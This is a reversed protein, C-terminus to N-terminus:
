AEPNFIARMRERYQEPTLSSDGNVKEAEALKKEMVVVRRESIDLQRKKLKANTEATRKSLVRDLIMAFLKADGSDVGEELFMQNGISIIEEESLGTKRRRLLEQMDLSRKERLEMRQRLLYFRRFGSLAAPSTQVGCEASIWEVLSEYSGDAGDMRAIIAAQVDRPLNNLKSDSRPKRSM